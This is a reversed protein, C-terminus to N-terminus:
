LARGPIQCSQSLYHRAQYHTYWCIRALPRFWRAHQHSLQAQDIAIDSNAHKCSVYKAQLRLAGHVLLNSPAPVIMRKPRASLDIHASYAAESKAFVASVCIHAVDNKSDKSAHGKTIDCSKYAKKSIQWLLTCGRREPHKGQLIQDGADVSRLSALSM